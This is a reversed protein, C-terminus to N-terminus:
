LLFPTQFDSVLIAIRVIDCPSELQCTGISGDNRYTTGTGSCLGDSLGVNCSTIFTPRSPRKMQLHEIVIVCVGQGDLRLIRGHIRVSFFAVM